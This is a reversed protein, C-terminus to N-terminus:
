RFLYFGFIKLGLACGNCEGKGENKGMSAITRFHYASPSYERPRVVVVVDIVYVLGVDPEIHVFEDFYTMKLHHALNNSLIECQRFKLFAM